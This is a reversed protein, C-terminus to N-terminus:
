LVFCLFRLFWDNHVRSRWTNIKIIIKLLESFKSMYKSTVEGPTPCECLLPQALTLPYFDLPIHNFQTLLVLGYIHPRWKTTAKGAHTWAGFTALGDAIEISNLIFIKEDLKRRSNHNRFPWCTKLNKIIQCVSICSVVLQRSCFYNYKNRSCLTNM